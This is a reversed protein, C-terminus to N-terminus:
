TKEGGADQRVLVMPSEGSDIKRTEEVLYDKPLYVIFDGRKGRLRQLDGADRFVFVYKVKERSIRLKMALNRTAPGLPTFYASFPHDGPPQSAKFRWDVTSRIGNYGAKDTYHHMGM